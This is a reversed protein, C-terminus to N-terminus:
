DARAGARRKRKRAPGANRARHQRSDRVPGVGCAHSEANRAGRGKGRARGDASQAARQRAFARLRALALQVQVGRKTGILEHWEDVVVRAIDSLRERSDARALLLSLSEPTTVLVAPLRQAQRAREGADTDGTRVGVSWPLGLDALPAALARATDAALARMPTLWLLRLGGGAVEGALARNLLAFWLAYTKGSGTTAHLLGSRGAAVHRWIERQFAFPQWGHAAFWGEASPLALQAVAKIRSRDPTVPAPVSAGERERAQRAQKARLAM